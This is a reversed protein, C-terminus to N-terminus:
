EIKVGGNLEKAETVANAINIFCFLMGDSEEKLSPVLIPPPTEAFLAVNQILINIEEGLRELEEGQVDIDGQSLSPLLTLGLSRAEQSGYVQTRWVEPGAVQRWSESEVLLRHVDRDIEERSLKRDRWDQYVAKWNIGRVQQRQGKEDFTYIRVDLSM